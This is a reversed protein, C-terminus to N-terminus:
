TKIQYCKRMMLVDKASANLVGHSYEDGSSRVPASCKPCGSRVGRTSALPPGELTLPDIHSLPSHHISSAAWVMATPVMM